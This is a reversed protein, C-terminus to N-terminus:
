IRTYSVVFVQREGNLPASARHYGTTDACFVTGAAGTVKVEDLECQRQDLKYSYLYKRSHFIEWLIWRIYKERKRLGHTKPVYSFPGNDNNVDTLYIFFKLNRKNDDEHFEGGPLDDINDKPWSKQYMTLECRVKDSGFYAKATTMFKNIYYESLQSIPGHEYLRGSLQGTLEYPMENQLKAFDKKLKCVSAIDLKEEFVYYGNSSLCYLGEIKPDIKPSYLFEYVLNRAWFIPGVFIRLIIKVAKVFNNKM